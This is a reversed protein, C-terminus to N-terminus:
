HIDTWLTMINNVKFIRPYLGKGRISGERIGVLANKLDLMGQYSQRPAQLSTSYTRHAGLLLTNSDIINLLNQTAQLYDRLDSQPLMALLEGPYIFDGAFLLNSERDFLVISDQTHGPAHILEIVRNGIDVKEGPKWWERVRFSKIHIGETHGLHEDDTPTFMGSDDLRERFGPLDALIIDELTELNGVHDYHLHSVTVILPVPTLSEAVPIINRIGPGTDFLIAKDKGIILYNYNMQHYRPEGIAITRNDVYEITYYDDFWEVESTDSFMTQDRLPPPGKLALIAVVLDFRFLYALVLLLILVFIAISIIM